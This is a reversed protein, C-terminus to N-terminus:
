ADGPKRGLIGSLFFRRVAQKAARCEAATASSFVGCVEVIKGGRVDVEVLSGTSLELTIRARLIGVVTTKERAM